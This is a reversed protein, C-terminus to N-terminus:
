SRAASTVFRTLHGARVTEGMAAAGCDVPPRALPRGAIGLVAHSHGDCSNLPRRGVHHARTGSTLWAACRRTPRPCHGLWSHYGRRSEHIGFGCHRWRLRGSTVGQSTHVRGRHSEDCHPSAHRRGDSRELSRRLGFRRARRTCTRQSQGNRGRGSLTPLLDPVTVVVPTLTHWRRLAVQRTTPRQGKAWM